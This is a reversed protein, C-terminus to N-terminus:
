QCNHHIAANGKICVQLANRLVASLSVASQSPEKTASRTKARVFDIYIERDGGEETVETRM